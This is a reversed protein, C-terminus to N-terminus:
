KELTNRLRLEIRKVCVRRTSPKLKINEQKLAVDVDKQVKEALASVDVPPASTLRVGAREAKEENWLVRLQDKTAAPFYGGEMVKELAKASPFREGSEYKKYTSVSVGVQRAFDEKNPYRSFSRARGLADQFRGSM